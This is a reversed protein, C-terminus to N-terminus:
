VPSALLQERRVNPRVLVAKGAANIGHLAFVNKVLDIGIVTVVNVTAEQAAVTTIKNM